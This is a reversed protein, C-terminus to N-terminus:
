GPGLAGSEIQRRLAAKLLKGMANRPLAEVVVVRRVVKYDALRDRSFAALSECLGTESQPGADPRVVIAATVREGWQADQVGVVAIEQVAPHESLVDEIERAGIKFGGSKIIDVSLRGVIRVYGDPDRSALDGTRLWPGDFAAATADPRGFYRTMMGPTQVQLEGPGSGQVVRGDDNVLRLQVGPLPLGVSGARRDGRVPNSVTILTESMGYREVIRHGTHAAFRELNSAPLAASGATFLRARGLMAGHAPHEDLHALLRHYMTPVGMFITAGHREIDDVVARCSFRRHLRTTMGRLLAGHIGICLGHVHFLPLQLSLVDDANWEWLDILSEIAAVVAGYSLEVGKSRGTTGSTYILLAPWDDASAHITPVHRGTPPGPISPSCVTGSWGALQAALPDSVVAVMAGSDNLVHEIEPATYKPNMPVWVAGLRYTALMAAVVLPDPGSLAAVRHGPGVGAHHLRAALTEVHQHLAGFSTTQGEFNIATADNASNVAAM